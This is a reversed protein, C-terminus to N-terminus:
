TIHQYFTELFGRQPMKTGEESAGTVHGVSLHGQAGMVHQVLPICLM